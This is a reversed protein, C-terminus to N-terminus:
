PHRTIKGMHLVDTDVTYGGLQCQEAYLPNSHQHGQKEKQEYKEKREKKVKPLQVIHERNITIM